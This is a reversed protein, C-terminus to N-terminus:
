KLDGKEGGRSVVDARKGRKTKRRRKEDRM